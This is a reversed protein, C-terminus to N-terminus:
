PFVRRHRRSREELRPVTRPRIGRRKKVANKGTFQLIKRSAKRCVPGEHRGVHSKKAGEHSLAPRYARDATLAEYVDAVSLIQAEAPIERGKLGMPYGSGDAREHHFLVVPVLEALARNRVIHAGAEPHIKILDMEEDTLPGNKFLVRDPVALKGIDHLLSGRKIVDIERSSFGLSIALLVALQAARSSHLRTYVDRADLAAALSHVFERNQLHLRTAADHMELAMSLNDLLQILEAM